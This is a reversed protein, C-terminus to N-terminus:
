VCACSRNNEFRGSSRLICRAQLPPCGVRLRMSLAGERYRGSLCIAHSRHGVVRRVAVANTATTTAATATGERVDGLAVNVVLAHEFVYQDFRHIVASVLLKQNSPVGPRFVVLMDEVRVPLLYGGVWAAVTLRPATPVVHAVGACM